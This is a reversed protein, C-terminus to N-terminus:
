LHRWGSGLLFVDATETKIPAMEPPVFARSQHQQLAWVLLGERVLKRHNQAVVLVMMMMMMMEPEDNGCWSLLPLLPLMTMVQM